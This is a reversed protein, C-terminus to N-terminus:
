AWVFNIEPDFDDEEEEEEEDERPGGNGLRAVSV